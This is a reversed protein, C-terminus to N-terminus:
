PIPKKSSTSGKWTKFPKFHQRPEGSIPGTALATAKYGIDPEIFLETKIGLKNLKTNFERLEQESGIELVVM